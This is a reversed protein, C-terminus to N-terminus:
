NLIKWVLTKMIEEEEQDTALIGKLMLDAEQIHLINQYVKLLPYKQRASAIDQAAYWNTKFKEQIAKVDAVKYSYASAVDSFFRFLSSITLISPNTKTNATLRHIIFHSRANDRISLSKNLEFVNFEKDINMMEYVLAKTIKKEKFASLYIFVKDLEKEILHLNTGLYSTIIEALGHEPEYGASLIHSGVWKAVDKEYMKKSELMVGKNEQIAKIAAKSLSKNKGKFAIVLITTPSPKQFYLLMKDWDKADMNQAERIIVLRHNAMLPFSKCANLIHGAQIDTGYLVDRNFDRETEDLVTTDLLQAIKDTFYTEEGFLYYINNFQKQKIGYIIDEFTM